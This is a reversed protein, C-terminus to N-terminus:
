KAAGTGASVGLARMRERVEAIAADDNLTTYLEFMRQLTGADDVYTVMPRWIQAAEQTRGALLAAWGAGVRTRPNGPQVRETRAYLDTAAAYRGLHVLNDALALMVDPDDPAQQAAAELLPQAADWRGHRQEDNAVVVRSRWDRLDIAVQARARHLAVQWPDGMWAPERGFEPGIEYLVAPHHDTAARVTLGPVASTTDLMYMFQPRMEAEPWSFYLWRVGDHRAAAALQPLSDVFPFATATLGAHWAFHPKRAYVRDGPRFLPRAADAV